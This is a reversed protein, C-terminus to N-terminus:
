HTCSVTTLTQTCNAVEYEYVTKTTIGNPAVTTMVVLVVVVVFLFKVLYNLFLINIIYALIKNMKKKRTFLSQVSTRKILKM